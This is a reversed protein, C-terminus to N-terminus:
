IRKTQSLNNTENVIEEDFGYDLLDQEGYEIGATDLAGRLKCLITNRQGEKYELEHKKMYNDIFSSIDSSSSNINHTSSAKAM